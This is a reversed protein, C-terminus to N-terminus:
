LPQSLPLIAEIATGTGDSSLSMRGGLLTIRERMGTLGTGERSDPDLGKGDDALIMRWHAPDTWLRIDIHRADAHRLANTIGEQLIRFLTLAVSEDPEPLDPALSLRIDTRPFRRGMDDVYEALVAALPLQGISVPRLDELLSRNVRAIQDAIAAISSAHDRIADDPAADRLADAEVRLGFLCPGMEDHLDRAIAKREQDARSVVRRQLRARDAQAKQLAGALADVGAAVPALDRQPLTGVRADLDGRRLDALRAAITAVPRLAQRVAVLILLMQVAAALASLGLITRMERWAAAIGATPDGVVYVFGRPRGALVAPLRIEQPDPAVLRAFWGPAGGSTEAPAAVPTIQGTRADLVGIRTHRPPVLRQPLAAMLRDPPVAGQMTGITALVLARATETALRTETGIDRRIANLSAAALAAFLGAQVALIVLLIRPILPLRRM